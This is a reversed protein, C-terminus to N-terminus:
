DDVAAVSSSGCRGPVARVLESSACCLVARLRVHCGLLEKWLEAIGFVSEFCARNRCRAQWVLTRELEVCQLGAQVLRTVGAATM